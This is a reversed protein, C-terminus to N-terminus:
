IQRFCRLLPLSSTQQRHSARHRSSANPHLGARSTAGAPRGRPVYDPPLAFTKPEVRNKKSDDHTLRYTTLFAYAAICLTAHHHFGRWNRGEYHSLGFEQKLERYDREIRWRMKAVFVVQDLTADAPATALWYSAPEEDGAPWEILLWEEPRVATALHDLHAPRIRLCAFRSTLTANTGDRWTVKQYRDPSFDMALDKVAVPEHGPGRRLLKPKSGRGSWTKPPLPAVDPAWVTTAPRIGVVYPLGLATIGDRFATDDGYAADALVVGPPVGASTAAQMQALAIQPKTAFTIAAPVGTKSRRTADGAWEKPLYLRYDIPVSGRETALSLSVAVQCNATKGLNGCYQHAVGVSHKGYKPHGSDDVIWYCGDEIGLTPVVWERIEGLVATDSWDSDAVFHHLSQHKSRVHLPDTHAALPEVSKREIPLMLGRCYDMLGANRDAHGLAGCLHELYEDFDDLLEM